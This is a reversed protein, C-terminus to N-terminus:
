FKGKTKESELAAKQADMLYVSFRELESVEIIEEFAELCGPEESSQSLDSDSNEYKNHEDSHTQTDLEPELPLLAHCPYLDCQTNGTM